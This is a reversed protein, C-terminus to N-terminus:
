LQTDLVAIPCTKMRMSNKFNTKKSTLLNQLRRNKSLLKSKQIFSIIGERALTANQSTMLRSLLKFFITWFSCIIAILLLTFDSKLM